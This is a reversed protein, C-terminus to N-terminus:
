EEATSIGSFCFVMVICAALHCMCHVARGPDKTGKGVCLAGVFGAARGNESANGKELEKVM